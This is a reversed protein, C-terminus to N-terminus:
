VCLELGGVRSGGTNVGAAPGDADEDMDTAEDYDLVNTLDDVM